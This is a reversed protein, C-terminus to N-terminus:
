ITEEVKNGQEDIFYGIQKGDKDLKFLAYKVKVGGGGLFSVTNRWIPHINLKEGKNLGIDLTHIKDDTALRLNEDFEQKVRVLMTLHVPYWCFKTVFDLPLDKVKNHQQNDFDYEPIVQGDTLHVIWFYCHRPPEGDDSNSKVKTM